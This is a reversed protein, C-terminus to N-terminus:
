REDYAALATAIATGLWQEADCGSPAGASLVVFQAIMEAEIAAPSARRVGIEELSRIALHRLARRTDECLGALATPDPSAVHPSVRKRRGAERLATLPALRVVISGPTHEELGDIVGRHRLSTLLKLVAPRVVPVGDVSQNGRGTVILVEGGHTVQKERLWAEARAVAQMVTPLMARLNLTRDPGFRVEDFARGLASARRPDGSGSRNSM